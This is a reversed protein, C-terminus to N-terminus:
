GNDDMGKESLLLFLLIFIIVLILVADVINLALGQIFALIDKNIILNKLLTYFNVVCGITEICVAFISIRTVIKLILKVIKSLIKM